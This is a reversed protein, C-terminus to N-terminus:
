EHVRRTTLWDVVSIESKKATFSVASQIGHNLPHFQNTGPTPLTGHPATAPQTISIVVQAPPRAEQPGGLSGV